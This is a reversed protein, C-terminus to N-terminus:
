PLALVEDGDGPQCGDALPTWGRHVVVRGEAHCLEVRTADPLRSHVFGELAVPMSIRFVNHQLDDAPHDDSHLWPVFAAARMLWWGVALRTPEYGEARLWQQAAGRATQADDFGDQSESWAAALLEALWQNCNQCRLGFAYANASYEAGLLRLARANDLAARELSAAAAAPLFVLSVHGSRADDTGMLFAALGQDFLRPLKEDCAYYFQRVAWRTEPSARLAVGAHSYRQDIRRLDLGSRAVLALPADSRELEAKVVAAFRLLRDKDEASLASGPDCFALSSASAPPLAALALCLAGLTRRLARLAILRRRGAHAARPVM